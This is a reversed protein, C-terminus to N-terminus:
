AKKYASYSLLNLFKKKKYYIDEKKKNNNNNRDGMWESKDGGRESLCM